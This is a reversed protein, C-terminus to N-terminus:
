KPITSLFENLREMILYSEFGKGALFNSVKSKRKLLNRESHLREWKTEILEDILQNYARDDIYDLGQVIHDSSIRHSRLEMEIKRKGWKNYKFKDNAFSRAFRAPDVFKEDRLQGFVFIAEDHDLGYSELKEIVQKPSREGKACYNAGSIKAQKLRDSGGSIM